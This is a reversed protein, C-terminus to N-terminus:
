DAETKSVSIAMRAFQKLREFPSGEPDLGSGEPDLGSGEPDLGLVGGILRPL